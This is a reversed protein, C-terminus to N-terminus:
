ANLVFRNAAFDPDTAVRSQPVRGHGSPTRLWQASPLPTRHPMERRMSSITAPLFTDVRRSAARGARRLFIDKRSSSRLARLQVTTARRYPSSRRETARAEDTISSTQYTRNVEPWHRSFTGCPLRRQHPAEFRGRSSIATLFHPGSDNSALLARVPRAHCADRRSM